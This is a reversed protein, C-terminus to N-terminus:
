LGKGTKTWSAFQKIKLNRKSKIETNHSKFMIKLNNETQNNEIFTLFRSHYSGSAYVCNINNNSAILYENHHKIDM